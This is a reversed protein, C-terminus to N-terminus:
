PVSADARAIRFGLRHAVPRGLVAGVIASPLGWFLVVVYIMSAGGGTYPRVCDTYYALVLWPALLSCAGIAAFPRGILLALLAPVLGPLVFMRATSVFSAFDLDYCAVANFTHLAVVGAM